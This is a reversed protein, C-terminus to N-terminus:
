LRARRHSKANPRDYRLSGIEVHPGLFLAHGGCRRENGRVTRFGLGEMPAIHRNGSIKGFAFTRGARPRSGLRRCFSKTKAPENRLEKAVRAPPPHHGDCPKRTLTQVKSKSVWGETSRSRRTPVCSM